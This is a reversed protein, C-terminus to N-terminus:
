VDIHIYKSTANIEFYRVRWRPLDQLRRVLSCLVPFYKTNTIDAARGATHRSGQVGGVAINHEPCRWGSTIAVPEGLAWRLLDLRMLLEDALPAYAPDGGCVGCKCRWESPQFYRAIYSM